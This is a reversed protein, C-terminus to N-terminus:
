EFDVVRREIEQVNQFFNFDENLRDFHARQEQSWEACKLLLFDESIIHAFKPPDIAIGVVTTIDPFKNRAVGCAVELLALRRERNRPHNADPCKLQMFVYMKGPDSLSPMYCAKSVIEQDTSPFTKIAQIMHRSLARRSMRHEKAMETLPNHPTWPSDGGITGDLAHQYSKQILDDWLYSEKNARRRREAYGRETFEKWTGELVWLTDVDPTTTDIRYKRQSEDYHSFYRAMLDEEGCYVLADLKDIADEKETLYAVFDAFTDLETLLLDLTYGDLVHIRSAKDLEVLFPAFFPLREGPRLAGYMIALSGSVNAASFSQCANEAGHAVIIKHIIPHEPLAFPLPDQGREDRYIPRGRKLYREAGTATKIQKDIVEKKWRAWTVELDKDEDQLVQSARDFFIFVHDGFVALVDCLEKGDENYLNPWSWLKLFTGECLDSLRQETLTVGHSKEITM